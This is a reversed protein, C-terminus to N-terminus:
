MTPASSCSARNRAKRPRSSPASISTTPLVVLDSARAHSMIEVDSASMTGITSWHVAEIGAGALLGVWRPSLNMDM